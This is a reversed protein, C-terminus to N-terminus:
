RRRRAAARAAAAPLALAAARPRRRPDRPRGRRARRPEFRISRRVPLPAGRCARSHGSPPRPGPAAGDLPAVFSGRTEAGAAVRHGPTGHPISWCLLAHVASSLYGKYTASGATPDSPISRRRAAGCCSACLHPGLTRTRRPPSPGHAEQVAQAEDGRQEDQPGGDGGGVRGSVPRDGRPRALRTLRRRWRTAWRPRAPSSSRAGSAWRCRSRRRWARRPVGGARRAHRRGPRRSGSGAVDRPLPRRQRARGRHGHRHPHAARGVRGRRLGARRRARAVHPLATRGAAGRPGGRGVPDRHLRALGALDHARPGRRRRARGPPDPAAAPGRAREARRRVAGRVVRGSVPRGFFSTEIPEGPEVPGEVVRGDPLRLRLM